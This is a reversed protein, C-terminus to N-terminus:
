TKLHYDRAECNYSDVIYFGVNFCVDITLIPISWLHGAQEILHSFLDKKLRAVVRESASTFLYARIM